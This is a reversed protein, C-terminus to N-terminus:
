RVPRPTNSKVPQLMIKVARMGLLVAWLAAVLLKHFHAELELPCCFSFVQNGDTRERPPKQGVWGGVEVM